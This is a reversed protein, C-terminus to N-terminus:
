NGADAALSFYGSEDVGPFFGFAANQKQLVAGRVARARKSGPHLFVGAVVGNAPNIAASLNPAGPTSMVIRNAATVVTGVSIPESLNGDGLAATAALSPAAPDLARRGPAPAAYRSGVVPLAATFGAAYLPDAPRAAKKWVIGGDLDSMGTARFTMTGAAVSGAPANAMVLYVPLTGDKSLTGAASFPTGNALQGAVVAVGNAAVSIAAYGNGQPSDANTTDAALVATYRGTQPARNTLANFVDRDVTVNATSSGDFITGTIQQTTGTLDLSFTATLPPRGARPIVVTAAGNLGFRTTFAYGAGDFVLRGTAVGGPALAVRLLGTHGSGGVLGNYSGGLPAFPNVVFHATLTLGDRMTFTVTPSNSTVDGSWGAFLYGASPTASLTFTNGIVRTTTGAFGPTVIGRGEVNVTLSGTQVYTVTRTLEAIVKGATNVSHVRIVNAGPALNAATASWAATGSARQYAGIGGANEVRFEVYAAGSSASTSGALAVAPALVTQNQAPTTIALAPVPQPPATIIVWYHQYTSNPNYYYGVGYSTESAYFANQGLIHIRHDPSTMWQRWTDDASSNGAAISEIYNAKPDTDWWAPLVYGAQRVLYNPGVHDPNVHDFYNRQAMDRARARAVQALVPSLTMFPRGQNSDGTMKQAIAQEQSNLISDAFGPSATALLALIALLIQSLCVANRSSARLNVPAALTRSVPPM